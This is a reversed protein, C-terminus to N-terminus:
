TRSERASVLTSRYSGLDDKLQTALGPKSRGSWVLDLEEVAEPPVEAESSYADVLRGVAERVECFSSYVPQSFLVGYEAHCRNLDALLKRAWTGDARKNEIRWNSIQAQLITWLEPYAKLRAQLVDKLQAQELESLKSNVQWRAGLLTLVAALISVAAAIVAALIPDSM